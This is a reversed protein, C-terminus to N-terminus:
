KEKGVRFGGESQISINYEWSARMSIPLIIIGEILDAAKRGLLRNEICFLSRAAEIYPLTGM